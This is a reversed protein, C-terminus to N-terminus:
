VSIKLKSALTSARAALPGGLAELRARIAPETAVVAATGAVGPGFLALLGYYARLADARELISKSLQAHTKTGEPKPKGDDVQMSVALTIGQKGAPSVAVRMRRQRERDSEGGVIFTGGGGAAVTVFSVINLATKASMETGATGASFILDIGHPANTRDANWAMGPFLLWPVVREADELPVPLTPPSENGDPRWSALAKFRAVLSIVEAHAVEGQAARAVLALGAVEGDKPLDRVLQQVEAQSAAPVDLPPVRAPGGSTAPARQRLGCFSCTLVVNADRSSAAIKRTCGLCAFDVAKDVLGRGVLANMVESVHPPYTLKAGCRQCADKGQRLRDIIQRLTGKMDRKCPGCSFEVQGDLDHGEFKSRGEIAAAVEAPFRYPTGCLQCRARNRRVLDAVQEMTAQMPRACKPCSFDVVSM